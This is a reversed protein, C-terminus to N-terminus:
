GRPIPDNLVSATTRLTMARERDVKREIPQNAASVRRSPLIFSRDANAAAVRLASQTLAKMQNRRQLPEVSIECRVNLADAGGIFLEPEDRAAGGAMPALFVRSGRSSGTNLFIVVDGRIAVAFAGFSALHCDAFGRRYEGHM